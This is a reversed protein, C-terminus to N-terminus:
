SNAQTLETCLAVECCCSDGWTSHPLGEVTDCLPGWCDPWRRHAASTITPFIFQSRTIPSPSAKSIIAGKWNGWKLKKCIQWMKKTELIWLFKLILCLSSWYMKLRNNLKNFLFLRWVSRWDRWLETDTDDTSIEAWKFKLNYLNEQVKHESKIEAPWGSHSECGSPPGSPQLSSYHWQLKPELCHLFWQTWFWSPLYAQFCGHM